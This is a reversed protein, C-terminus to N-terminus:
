DESGLLEDLDMDQFVENIADRLEESLEPVEAGVEVDANLIHLGGTSGVHEAFEDGIVLIRMDLKRLLPQVHMVFRRGCTPCSWVEAGSPHTMDLQMEHQQQSKFHENM